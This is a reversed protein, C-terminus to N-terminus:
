CYVCLRVIGTVFSFAQNLRTKHWGALFHLPGIRCEQVWVPAFFLLHIITLAYLKM